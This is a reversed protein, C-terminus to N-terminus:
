REHLRFGEGDFIKGRFIRINLQDIIEKLVAYAM